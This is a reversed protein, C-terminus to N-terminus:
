KGKQLTEIMRHLIANLSGEEFRKMLSGNCFHDERLLMTLLATCLEYDADPLRKLENDCNIPETTMYEWYNTKLDGMQGLLDYYLEETNPNDIAYQIASIKEQKTM